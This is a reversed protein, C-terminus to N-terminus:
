ARQKDQLESQRLAAQHEALEADAAQQQAGAELAERQQRLSRCEARHQAASAQSREQPPAPARMRLTVSNGLLTLTLGRYM